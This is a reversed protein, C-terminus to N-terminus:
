QTGGGSPVVLVGKHKKGDQDVATVDYSRGGELILGGVKNDDDDNKVTVAEGGGQPTLTLTQIKLATENPDTITLNVNSTVAQSVNILGMAMVAIVFWGAKRIERNM